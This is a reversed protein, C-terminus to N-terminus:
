GKRESCSAVETENAHPEGVKGEYLTGDEGKTWWVLTKGPARGEDTSYKAGSASIVNTLEYVKGDITLRAKSTSGSELYTAHLSM